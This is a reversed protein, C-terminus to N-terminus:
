SFSSVLGGLDGNAAMKSTLSALDIGGKGDGLLGSLASTISDSNTQFYGPPSKCSTWSKSRNKGLKLLYEAYVVFGHDQRKEDLVPSRQCCQRFSGV